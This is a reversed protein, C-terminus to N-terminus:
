LEQLVKLRGLNEGDFKNIQLMLIAKTELSFLHFQILIVFLNDLYQPGMNAIM